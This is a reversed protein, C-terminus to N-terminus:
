FLGNQCQSSYFFSNLFMNLLIDNRTFKYESQLNSKHWTTLKVCNSKIHTHKRDLIVVQDVNQLQQNTQHTLVGGGHDRGEVALGADPLVILEEM